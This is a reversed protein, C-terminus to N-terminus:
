RVTQYVKNRHYRYCVAFLIFVVIAVIVCLVGTNGLSFMSQISMDDKLAILDMADDEGAAIDGRLSVGLKKSLDRDGVKVFPSHQSYEKRVILKDVTEEATSM